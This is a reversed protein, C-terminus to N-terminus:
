KLVKYFRIDKKSTDPLERMVLERMTLGRILYTYELTDMTVKLLRQNDKQFELFQVFKGQGKTNEIPFQLVPDTSVWLGVLTPEPYKYEKVCGAILFLAIVPLLLRKM